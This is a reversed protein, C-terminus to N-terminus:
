LYPLYLFPYGPPTLVRYPTYSGPLPHLFIIDLPCIHPAPRHDVTLQIPKQGQADTHVPSEQVEAFVVQIQVRLLRRPLHPPLVNRGSLALSHGFNYFLCSFNSTSGCRHSCMIADTLVGSPMPSFELSCTLSVKRFHSPNEKIHHFYLPFSSSFFPFFLFSSSNSSFPRVFRSPCESGRM